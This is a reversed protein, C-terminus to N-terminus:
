ENITVTPPPSLVSSTDVSMYSFRGRGWSEETAPARLHHCLLKEREKIQRSDEGAPLIVALLLPDVM